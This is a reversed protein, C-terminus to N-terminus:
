EENLRRCERGTGGIAGGDGFGPVLAVTENEPVKRWFHGLFVIHLQRRFREVVVPLTSKGTRIEKGLLAAKHKGLKLKRGPGRDGSRCGRPVLNMRGIDVGQLASTPVALLGELSGVSCAGDRNLGRGGLWVAAALLVSAALGFAV